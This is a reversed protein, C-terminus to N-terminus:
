KVCVVLWCMVSEILCVVLWGVYLEVVCGAYACWGCVDACVTCVWDCVGSVVVCVVGFWCLGFWSVCMWGACVGAFRDPVYVCVCVDLWM